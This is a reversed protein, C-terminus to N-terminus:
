QAHSLADILRQTTSGVDTSEVDASTVGARMVVFGELLRLRDSAAFGACLKVFTPVHHSSDSDSKASIADRSHDQTHLPFAHRNYISNQCV